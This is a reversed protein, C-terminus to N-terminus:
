APPTTALREQIIKLHHTIHGAMIYAAARVSMSKGDGAGQRLWSEPTQRKFMAVNGRRLYELEDILDPLDVRTYDTNNVFADQDFGPLATGDAAAFRCARYGFIRETDVCHGIVQKITWTYPPHLVSASEADLEDLEARITSVQSELIEIINGEGVLSIYAEFYDLYEQPSPRDPAFITNM